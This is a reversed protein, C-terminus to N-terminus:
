TVKIRFKTNPAIVSMTGLFADIHDVATLGGRFGAIMAKAIEKMLKM